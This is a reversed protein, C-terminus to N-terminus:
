VAALKAFADCEAPESDAPSALTAAITLRFTSGRGPTSEVSIDGALLNALNKTIV